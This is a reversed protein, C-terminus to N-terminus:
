SSPPLMRFSQRAQEFGGLDREFYYRVAAEYALRYVHEGTVCVYHVRKLQLGDPSTWTYVLRFAPRSSLEAMSSELLEFGAAGLSARLEEVEIAAADQPTVRSGFSKKTVPLEATVPARVTAIFQMGDRTVLSPGSSPGRILSWGTLLDMEFGSGALRGKDSLTASSACAALLLAALVVGARGM